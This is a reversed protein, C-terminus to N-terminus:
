WDQAVVGLLVGADSAELYIYGDAQRFGDQEVFPGFVAYEGAGISYAAIDGTRGTKHAAASTITVTQAGIATNHAVILDRPRFVFQNKNAVDAAAMTLDALNEGYTGFQGLARTKTLTTKPM